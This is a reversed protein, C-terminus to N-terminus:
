DPVKKRAYCALRSRRTSYSCRRGFYKWCIVLLTWCQSSMRLLMLQLKLPSQKTSPGVIVPRASCRRRPCCHCPNGSSLANERRTTDFQTDRDIRRRVNRAVDEEAGSRRSGSAGVQNCRFSPASVLFVGPRHCVPIACIRERWCLTARHASPTCVVHRPPGQSSVRPPASHCRIRHSRFLCWQTALRLTSGDRAGRLCALTCVRLFVASSKNVSYSYPGHRHPDSSVLM